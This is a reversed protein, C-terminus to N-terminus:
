IHNPKMVEPPIVEKWVGSSGTLGSKNQITRVEKATSEILEKKIKITNTKM